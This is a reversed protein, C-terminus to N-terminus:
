ILIIANIAGESRLIFIAKEDSRLKIGTFKSNLKRIHGGNKIIGNPMDGSTLDLALRRFFSVTV